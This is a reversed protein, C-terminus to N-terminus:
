SINLSEHDIWREMNVKITRIYKKIPTNMRQVQWTSLIKNTQIRKKKFIVGEMLEEYLNSGSDRKLDGM